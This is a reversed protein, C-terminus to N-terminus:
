KKESSDRPEQCKRTAYPMLRKKRGQRRFFCKETSQPGEGIIINRKKIERRWEKIEQHRHRM